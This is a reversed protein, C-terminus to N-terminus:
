VCIAAIQLELVPHIEVGFRFFSSKSGIKQLFKLLCDDTGFHFFDAALADNAVKM